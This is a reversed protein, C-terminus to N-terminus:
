QNLMKNLEDCTYLKLLKYYLRIQKKSEIINGKNAKLYANIIAKIFQYNTMGIHMNSMCWAPGVKYAGPIGDSSDGIVIQSAIALRSEEKSISKFEGLVDEYSRYNYFPVDPSNYFVDKDISSVVCKGESLIMADYLYDDAEGGESSIAELEEIMYKKIIPLLPSKKSNLRNAKYEPFIKYRFNNQGGVFIYTQKINYWEEVNNQIEQIKNRTRFKAEELQYEETPFNMLSDEPFHTAFYIISDADILLVREQNDYSKPTNKVYKVIIESEEFNNTKKVGSIM